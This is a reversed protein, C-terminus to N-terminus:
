RARDMCSTPTMSRSEQLVEILDPVLLVQGLRRRRRGPERPPEVDLSPIRLSEPESPSGASIRAPHSVPRAPATRGQASETVLAVNGALSM